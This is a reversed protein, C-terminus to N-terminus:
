AYDVARDFRTVSPQPLAAARGHLTAPVDAPGPQSVTTGVRMQLVSTLSPAPTSVPKPPTANKLMLTQGPSRRFDVIVDAREAPALVLQSVRVPRDWMGGEAGIQWMQVGGLGLNLIRANCGNLIRFRYLRPEVTLYPWVKGNVLM